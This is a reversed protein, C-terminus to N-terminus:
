AVYQNFRRLVLAPRVFESDSGDIEHGINAGLYCWWVEREKFTPYLGKKQLAKKCTNWEDFSKEM